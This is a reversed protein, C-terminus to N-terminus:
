GHASSAADPTAARAVRLFATIAPSADAQASVALGIRRVHPPDLPRAVVGKPLEDPLALAPKISVGAGREVMALISHVERIQYQVDISVNQMIDRIAPECGGTSMIFPDQGLQDPRVRREAALPHDAPLVAMMEDCTLYATEFEENPLTVFGTDLRGARLWHEVEQDSGESVRVAIDPYAASFREVIPPLLRRSATIGFSGVRVTGRRVRRTADADQEILSRLHLVERGHRVVREGIETAQVGRGDRVLLTVRLSAELANVAHSVASQTMRLHRAAHTFSGHDAVAVLAQLQAWTM